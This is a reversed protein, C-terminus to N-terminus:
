VFAHVHLNNQIPVEGKSHKHHVKTCILVVLQDEARWSRPKSKSAPNLVLHKRRRVNDALGQDDNHTGQTSRRWGLLLGGRTRVRASIDHFSLSSEKIEAADFWASISETILSTTSPVAGTRSCENVCSMLGGSSKSYQRQSSLMLIVNCHQMCTSSMMSSLACYLICSIYDSTRLFM